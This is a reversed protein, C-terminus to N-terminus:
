RRAAIWRDVNEELVSLPVPGSGLVLDHFARVDFRAGLAAEARARLERIKLEGTKYALAQGPWTIYRDVEAEINHLALASNQAMFEIARERSWGFAHLGTDVVLRCARWMEYSLRGFDSYPDQYFGCELGLRESYLGWGEIYATVDAWKRFEPMNELEQQIAIQLHHGPVAEHLSLAEIEYLPRSELKSLNVFYFGAKAGDGAPEEYYATTTYPAIYAPVPQLGYPARPLRGFLQPLLGDMRKCVAATRMMLEEGTKPYFRPDTRLFQVWEAFTGQFGAKRIVADMEARIRAVEKVGREHVDEPDLDLTTFSKVRFRYYEAGGPLRGYGVEAQLAPEYEQRWFDLLDRYGPIVSEAIAARGAATLRERTVADFHAPFDTFPAALLSNAPDDVIHAAVTDAFGHLSARPLTWGTRIGERMLELHDATWRRFARLRAVYNEYDSVTAFPHRKPLEAFDVHFGGRNTIPIRWARHELDGIEDAMVHHLVAANIADEQTIRLGDLEAQFARLEVLRREQAAISAEPLRDDWAHRGTRTAFLPNWALRAAFYRDMLGDLRRDTTTAASTCAGFLLLLPLIRLM